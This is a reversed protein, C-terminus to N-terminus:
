GVVGAYLVLSDSTEDWDERVSSDAAVPFDSKDTCDVLDPVDM